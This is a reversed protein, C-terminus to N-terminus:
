FWSKLILMKQNRELEHVHICKNREVEMSKDVDTMWARSSFTSAIFIGEPVFLLQAILVCRDGIENILTYIGEHLQLDACSSSSCLEEYILAMAQFAVSGSGEDRWLSNLKWARNRDLKKLTTPVGDESECYMCWHV